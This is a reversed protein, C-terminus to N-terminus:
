LGDELLQLDAPTDVDPNGGAVDIFAVAPLVGVLGRDGTARRCLPWVLRDLLVPHGPTDPQDQYRPRIVPGAGEEWSRILRQMTEVRVLPQDGLLLLVADMTPQAEAAELGLHISLSIGAESSPNAVPVLGAREALGRAARDEAAVVVWGAQLVGAGRARAVTGCVHSLLPEGRLVAGLKGGDFRRSQGAALVVAGVSSLLRSREPSSFTFDRDRLM